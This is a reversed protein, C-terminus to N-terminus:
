SKGGKQMLKAAAKVGDMIAAYSGCRCLHASPGSTTLAAKIDDESPAQNSELLEVSKIMMGSQCIGCQPVQQEIWAQQVPHLTDGDSKNQTPIRAQWRAPLGELTTVESGACATVPTICSRIERGNLLVSCAGCQALGCGFQPSMVNLENRLVYLLPTDAPSTVECPEGNVTLKVM